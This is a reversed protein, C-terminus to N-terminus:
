ELEGERAAKLRAAVEPDIVFRVTPREDDKHDFSVTSIAEWAEPVRDRKVKGSRYMAILACAVVLSPDFGDMGEEITVPTYGSYRKIWSWELTTLEAEPVADYQGDLWKAINRVEFSHAM